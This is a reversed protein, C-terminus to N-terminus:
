VRKMEDITIGRNHTTPVWRQKSARLTGTASAAVMMLAFVPAFALALYASSPAGDLVMGLLVYGVMSALAAAWAWWPLLAPLEPAVAGLSALAMVLLLLLSRPPKTLGFGAIVQQLNRGRVGTAIVKLGFHWATLAAGAVWRKRQKSLQAAEGTKEDYVRAQDVYAVAIGALMLRAQWEGDECLGRVADGILWAFVERDFATGSGAITASLGMATRGSQDLRNWLSESIADLQSAWSDGANKACRASQIVRHGGDLARNLEALYDPPVLNDADLILVYDCDSLQPSIQDWLWGLAAGKTALDEKEREYCCALGSNRVVEATSDTCGNAVVFVRRRESPYQQLALSWLLAGVVTEENHASILIGFRREMGCTRPRESNGRHSAIAAAVAPVWLYGLYAFAYGQLIFLPAVLALENM